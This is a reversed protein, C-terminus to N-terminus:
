AKISKKSSFEKLKEFFFCFGYKSNYQTEEMAYFTKLYYAWRLTQKRILTIGQLESFFFCTTKWTRKQFCTTKRVENNNKKINFKQLKLLCFNKSRSLYKKLSNKLFNKLSNRPLFYTTNKEVKKNFRIEPLVEFFLVWHKSIPQRKKNLNKQVQNRAADRFVSKMTPLFFNARIREKLKIEQLIKLFRPNWARFYNTKREKISKKFGVRQLM